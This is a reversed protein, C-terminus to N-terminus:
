FIQVLSASLESRVVAPNSLEISRKASDFGLLFHPRVVSLALGAALHLWTEGALRLAVEPVSGFYVLLRVLHANYVSFSQGRADEIGTHPRPV